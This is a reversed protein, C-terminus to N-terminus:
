RADRASGAARAGLRDGLHQRQLRAPRGPRDRQPEIAAVPDVLAPRLRREDVEMAAAPHDAIQLAVVLDAAREGVGDGAM